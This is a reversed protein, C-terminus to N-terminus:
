FDIQFSLVPVLGSQYSYVLQGAIYDYIQNRVNKYATANQVDLALTYNFKKLNKRYAIRGDIRFYAPV